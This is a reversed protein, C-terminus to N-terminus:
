NAQCDGFCYSHCLNCWGNNFKPAAAPKSAAVAATYRQAAQAAIEENKVFVVKTGSAYDKIIRRVIREHTEGSKTTVTVTDGVKVKIIKPYKGGNSVFAGFESSGNTYEIKTYTATFM